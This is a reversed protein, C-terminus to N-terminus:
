FFILFYDDGVFPSLQQSKGRGRGNEEREKLISETPLFSKIRAGFFISIDSSIDKFSSGSPHM